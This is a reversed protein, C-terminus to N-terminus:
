KSYLWLFVMAIALAIMIVYGIGTSIPDSHAGNPIVESDDTLKARWEAREREVALKENLKQKQELEKVLDQYTRWHEQARADIYKALAKSEDGSAEAFAQLWLGEDRQELKLEEAVKAYFESPPRTNFM